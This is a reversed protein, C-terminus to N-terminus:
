SAPGCQRGVQHIGLAVFAAELVHSTIDPIDTGVVLAQPLLCHCHKDRVPREYTDCSIESPDALETWGRM